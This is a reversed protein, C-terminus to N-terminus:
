ECQHLGVVLLSILLASCWNMGRVRETVPDGLIEPDEDPGRQNCGQPQRTGCLRLGDRAIEHADHVGISVAEFYVPVVFKKNSVFTSLQITVTVLGSSVFVTTFSRDSQQLYARRPSRYQHPRSQGFPICVILLRIQGEVVIFSVKPDPPKM